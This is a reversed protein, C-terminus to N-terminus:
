AQDVTDQEVINEPTRQLEEVPTETHGQVNEERQIAKDLEDSCVCFLYNGLISGQPSGGIVIRGKSMTDGIQVSM